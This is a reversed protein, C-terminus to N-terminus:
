ENLYRKYLKNEDIYEYLFRTDNAENQLKIERLLIKMHDLLELHAKKHAYFGNVAGRYLSHITDTLLTMKEEEDLRNNNEIFDRLESM